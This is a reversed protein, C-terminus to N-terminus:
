NAMNHCCKVPYFERKHKSKCPRLITQIVWLAAGSPCLDHHRGDFKCSLSLAVDYVIGQWNSKQIDSCKQFRIPSTM